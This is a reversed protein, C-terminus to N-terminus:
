MVVHVRQFNICLKQFYNGNLIRKNNRNRSHLLEQNCVVLPLAMDRVESHLLHGESHYSLIYKYKM